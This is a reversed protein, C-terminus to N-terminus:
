QFLTGNWEKLEKKIAKSHRQRDEWKDGRLDADHEQIKRRCREISTINPLEKRSLMTLLEWGSMKKVRETGLHYWWVFSVLQEDNDRTEPFKNLINRVRDELKKIMTISLPATLLWAILKNHSIGPILLM